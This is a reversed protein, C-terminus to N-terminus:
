VEEKWGDEIDVEVRNLESGDPTSALAEQRAMKMAERGANLINDATVEVYTVYSVEARVVITYRGLKRKAKKKTM